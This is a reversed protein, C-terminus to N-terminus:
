SPLGQEIVKTRHSRPPSGRMRELYRDDHKPCMLCAKEETDKQRSNGRGPGRKGGDMWMAEGPSQELVVEESHDEGVVVWM